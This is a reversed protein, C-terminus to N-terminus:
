VSSSGNRHAVEQSELGAEIRVNVVLPTQFSRKGGGMDKAGGGHRRAWRGSIDAFLQGQAREGLMWSVPFSAESPINRVRLDVRSSPQSLSIDNFPRSSGFITSACWAAAESGPPHYAM